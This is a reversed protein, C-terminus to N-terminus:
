AAVSEPQVTGPGADQLGDFWEQAAQRSILIKGGCRKAQPGDGAQWLRYLKSRSVGFMATFERVDYVEGAARDTDTEDTKM